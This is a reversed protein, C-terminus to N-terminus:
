FVPTLIPEQYVHLMWNTHPLTFKEFLDKSLIIRLFEVLTRSFRQSSNSTPGPNQEIDVSQKTLILQLWIPFLYTVLTYIHFIKLLLINMTKTNKMLLVTFCFSKSFLLFMSFTLLISLFSSATPLVYLTISINIYTNKCHLRGNFAGVMGRYQDLNVPM